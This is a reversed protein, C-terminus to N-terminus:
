GRVRFWRPGATVIARNLLHAEHRQIAESCLSAQERARVGVLRIIGAHPEGGRVVLEGFDRDLTVLVRQEGYAFALIAQDGPDAPWDGVWVVDHGLDRLEASAGHWICSDLLLRM